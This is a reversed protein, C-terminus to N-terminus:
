ALRALTLCAGCPWDALSSRATRRKKHLPASRLLHLHHNRPIDRHVRRPSCIRNTACTALRPISSEQLDDRSERNAGRSRVRLYIYHLVGKRGAAVNGAEAISARLYCFLVFARATQNADFGPGEISLAKPPPKASGKHRAAGASDLATPSPDQPQELLRRGVPEVVSAAAPHLHADARLAIASIDITGPLARLQRAQLRHATGTSAVLAGETSGAFVGLSLPAVALLLLQIHRM